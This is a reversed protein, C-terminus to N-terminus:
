FPPPDPPVGPDAPLDSATLEEIRRQAVDLRQRCVALYRQGQEFLAVAEELGVDGSDLRSVVADLEALAREFTLEEDTV